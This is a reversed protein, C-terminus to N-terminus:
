CLALRSSNDIKRFLAARSGGARARARPKSARGKCLGAGSARPREGREEYITGIQYLSEADAPDLDAAEVYSRLALDLDGKAHAEAARAAHKTARRYSSVVAAPEEATPQAPRREPVALSREMAGSVFLVKIM